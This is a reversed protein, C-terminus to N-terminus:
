CKGKSVQLFIKHPPVKLSYVYGIKEDSKGGSTETDMSREQMSANHDSGLPSERIGNDRRCKTPMQLTFSFKGKEM